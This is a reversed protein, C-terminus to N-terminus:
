INITEKRGNAYLLKWENNMPHMMRRIGSLVNESDDVFLVSLTM